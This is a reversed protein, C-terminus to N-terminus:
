CDLLLLVEKYSSFIIQIKDIGSEDEYNSKNESDSDCDTLDETAM